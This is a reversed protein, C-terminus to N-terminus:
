RQEGTGLTHQTHTNTHTRSTHQQQIYNKRQSHQTYILVVQTEKRQNGRQSHTYTDTHSRSGAAPRARLPGRTAASATRAAAESRTATAAKSRAAARATAKGRTPTRSERRTPTAAKRRTARGPPTPECRPAPASAPILRTTHWEGGQKSQVPRHKASVYVCVCM